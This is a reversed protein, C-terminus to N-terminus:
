RCMGMAKRLYAVALGMHGGLPEDEVMEQHYAAIKKIAICNFKLMSFTLM